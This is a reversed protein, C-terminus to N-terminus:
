KKEPAFETALVVNKIGVQSALDIVKIVFDYKVDKDGHIVLSLDPSSKALAALKFKLVGLDFRLSYQSNELVADGSSNITLYVDKLPQQSASSKPLNIGLSSEVLLPTAGMFIILIVLIVDTFPTINIEAVLRQSRPRRKM